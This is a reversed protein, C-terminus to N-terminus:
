YYQCTSAQLHLGMNCSCVSSKGLCMQVSVDTARRARGDVVALNSSRMELGGNEKTATAARRVRPPCLEGQTAHEADGRM